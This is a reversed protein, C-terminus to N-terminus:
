GQNAGGCQPCSGAPDLQVTTGCFKCTVMNLAGGTFAQGGIYVHPKAEVTKTGAEFISSAWNGMRLAYDLTPDLKVKYYEGDIRTKLIEADVLFEGVKYGNMYRAVDPVFNPPLGAILQKMAEFENKYEEIYIKDAVFAKVERNDKEDWEDREGADEDGGGGSDDDGARKLSLVGTTNAIKQELHMWGADFDVVLRFSRGEFSGAVHIEDDDTLTKLKGGYKAALPQLAATAYAIKEDDEWSFYDDLDNRLAM